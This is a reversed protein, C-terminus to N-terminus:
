LNSEKIMHGNLLTQLEIKSIWYDRQKHIYHIKEELEKQKASLLGFVGIQMANHQLLTYHTIQEALPINVKKLYKTQRSANLLMFRASRARSRIEIALSTYDNWKQMITSKAKASNAIGFDFLPISLSFAPGLYWIGEEREASVGLDFGPFILKSTDIGFKAAISQLEYHAAKLDVSNLIVQNEINSFDAEVEPANPIKSCFSWGIEDGWLGMLKNLNERAELVRIEWSSLEIKAREYFARQMSVDLAIMNGAVHLKKAAEYSLESALLIQKKLEWIEKAARLSYFAIKTEAIVDLIQATVKSITADLEAKAMKKKKPILFIELFNQILSFDILDTVSENIPFRNSFSFIPNKLLGAQALDAKAIGLTEYIAQLKPNNLLSITTASEETLEDKLLEKYSIEENESGNWYINHGSKSSINQQIENFSEETNTDVRVCSSFSFLSLTICLSLAKKKIHDTM